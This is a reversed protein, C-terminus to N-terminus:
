LSRIMVTLTALTSTLGIIEALSAKNSQPLKKPVVVKAGPELKPWFNWFMIKKTSKTNGNQYIVFAGRKRASEKFGGAREIAKITSLGPHYAIVTPQEVEGFIEITNDIKPVFIIDENKLIVNYRMDKGSTKFLSVVDVGFELFEKQPAVEFGLSDKEDFAEEIVKKSTNIRQIKIGNLAANELVGGADNLLDYLSYKSSLLAYTGPTKVLGTIEVFASEVLGEKKRVVVLDGSKLLPNSDISSSNFNEKLSSTLALFPRKGTKDYSARYLDILYSDGDKKLGDALLVLDAVTMGKYFLFDKPSNVEGKITVSFEDKLTKKSFVRVRDNPLLAITTKKSLVESISFSVMSQEEGDLQRYIVARSLLADEKPGQALSLLERVTESSELMYDGPIYVAGEISVKNTYRDAIPKAEIIDGSKVLSTEYDNSNVTRISKKIGSVSKIFIEDKYAFPGFGGTYSLLDHIKEGDVFEFVGATKFEGNVFVRNKYSPVLIVDQDRLTISPFLGKVFYNYLDVSKYVKGNRLVQIARFSGNETPGGAAYLANLVSIMSSLTYTGPREVSGVINIIISRSKSLSVNFFVKQYSESSSSIGSYIKSLAAGIKKKAGLLTLGSVYIPGVRDIKITGERTIEFAYENESAGWVSVKLEDGPGLQYYSPTAINIQPSMGPDDQEKANNFFSMGFINLGLYKEEEEEEEEKEESSSSIGFISSLDNATKNVLSGTDENATKLGKIRQEFKTLDSESAGQARALTKLQSLSYGQEQAQTWYSLLEQDSMLELSKIKNQAQALSGLDQSYVLSSVLM